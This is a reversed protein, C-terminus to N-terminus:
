VKVCRLVHFHKFFSFVTSSAVRAIASGNVELAFLRGVSLTTM